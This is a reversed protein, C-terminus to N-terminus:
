SPREDDLLAALRPTQDIVPFLTSTRSGDYRAVPSDTM